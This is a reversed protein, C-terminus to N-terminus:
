EHVFLILCVFFGPDPILQTNPWDRRHLSLLPKPLLVQARSFSTRRGM